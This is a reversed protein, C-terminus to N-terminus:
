GKMVMDALCKEEKERLSKKDSDPSKQKSIDHSAFLPEHGKVASNSGLKGLPFQNKPGRKKQSDKEVNQESACSEEDSVMNNGHTTEKASKGNTATKKSQEKKDNLDIPEWANSDDEDDELIEIDAGMWRDDSGANNSNNNPASSGDISDFFDAYPQTNWANKQARYHLFSLVILAYGFFLIGIGTFACFYKWNRFFTQISNMEKGYKLEASHVQISQMTNPFLSPNPVGLNVEVISMPNKSSADVYNDFCLLTITKTESMIGSALPLLLMTKRFLSVLTSEYPLMSHQKSSALTAGDSSRLDVKVMFVGLQRNIESEPLILDVEFFYRQGPILIMMLTPNADSTTSDNKENSGTDHVKDHHTCVDDDGISSASGLKEDCYSNSWPASKTSQLDVIGLPMISDGPSYDFFIPRSKVELGRMIVAWVLGYTGVSLILVAFMLFCLKIIWIILPLVTSFFFYRLKEDLRPAAQRQHESPDDDNGRIANLLRHRVRNAAARGAAREFEHAVNFMPFRM